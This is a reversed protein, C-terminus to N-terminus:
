FGLPCRWGYPGNTFPGHPATFPAFRVKASHHVGGFGGRWGGDNGRFRSGLPLRPAQYPCTQSIGERM